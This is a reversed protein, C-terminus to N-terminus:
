QVCSFDIKKGQFITNGHFCVPSIKSWPGARGNAGLIMEKENWRGKLLVAVGERM